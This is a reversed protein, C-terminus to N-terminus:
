KLALVPVSLPLQVDADAGHRVILWALASV